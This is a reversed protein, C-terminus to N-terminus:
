RTSVYMMAVMSYIIASIFFANRLDSQRIPRPQHRNEQYFLVYGIVHPVWGVFLIIYFSMPILSTVIMWVLFLGMHIASRWYFPTADERKVYTLVTYRQVMFVLLSSIFLAFVFVVVASIGLITSTDSWITTVAILNM